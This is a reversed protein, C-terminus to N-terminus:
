AYEDVKWKLSGNRWKSSLGEITMIFGEGVHFAVVNGNESEASVIVLWSGRPHGDCKFIVKKVRLGNEEQEEIAHALEHLRRGSVALMREFMVASGHANGPIDTTKKTM